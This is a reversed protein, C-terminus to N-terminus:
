ERKVKILGWFVSFEKLPVLLVFVMTDLFIKFNLNYPIFHFYTAIVYPINFLVIGFFLKLIDKMSGM